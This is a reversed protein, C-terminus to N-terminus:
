IVDIIELKPFTISEIIKTTNQNQRTTTPKRGRTLNTPQIDPHPPNHRCKVFLYMIGSLSKVQYVVDGHGNLIGELVFDVVIEQEIPIPVSQTRWVKTTYRIEVHPPNHECHVLVYTIGNLGNASYMIDGNEQQEIKSFESIGIKQIEVLRPSCIHDNM